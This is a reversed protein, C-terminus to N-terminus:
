LNVNSQITDVITRVDGDDVYNIIFNQFIMNANELIKLQIFFLFFFM